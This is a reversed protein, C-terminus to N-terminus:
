NLDFVSDDLANDALDIRTIPINEIGISASENAGLDLPFPDDAVFDDFNINPNLLHRNLRRETLGDIIPVETEIVITIPALGGPVSLPSVVSYASKTLSSDLLSGNDYIANVFTDGGAMSVSTVTGYLYGTDVLVRIRRGISYKDTQNGSVYYRLPASYVAATEGTWEKNFQAADTVPDDEWIQNGASDTMVIKYSGDLKIDAYGEANLTVPNENEVNAAETTYTAKNELTGTKYTYVKGFANPKGDRGWGYFKPGIMAIAM